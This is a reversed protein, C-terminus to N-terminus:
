LILTHIKGSTSLCPSRFQCTNNGDRNFPIVHDDTIMKQLTKYVGVSDIANHRTKKRAKTCNIKFEEKEGIDEGGGTVSM